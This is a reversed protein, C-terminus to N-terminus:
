DFLQVFNVDIGHPYPHDIPDANTFRFCREKETM